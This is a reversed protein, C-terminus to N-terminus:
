RISRDVSRTAPKSSLGVARACTIEGWGGMGLGGVCLVGSARGDHVEIGERRVCLLGGEGALADLHTAYWPGSLASHSRGRVWPACCQCWRGTEGVCTVFSMAGGCWARVCVSKGGGM